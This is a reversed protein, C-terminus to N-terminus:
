ISEQEDTDHLINKKWDKTEQEEVMRKIKKRNHNGLKKLQKKFHRQERAQREQKTEM